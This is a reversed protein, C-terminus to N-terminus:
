DEGQVIFKFKGFGAFACSALVVQVDSYPLEKDLVINVQLAEKKSKEHNDKGELEKNVREKTATLSSVINKDLTDAAKDESAELEGKYEGDIWVGRMRNVQVIPSISGFNRIKTYPLALEEALNVSLDSAGYSQLLFVLLIALVDLLSTLNLDSLVECGAKKRKRRTIIM